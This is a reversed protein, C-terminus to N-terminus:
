IRNWTFKLTSRLAVEMAKHDTTQFFWLSIREGAVAALCILNNLRCNTEQGGKFCNKPSINGYGNNFRASLNTCEGAYRIEDGVSLVYVGSSRFRNPIKFRCFPGAGYRNLPVNHANKYRGQPMLQQISGDPGHVPQIDGVHEFEYGAIKMPLHHCAGTPIGIEFQSVVSAPALARKILARLKPV